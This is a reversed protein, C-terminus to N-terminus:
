FLDFFFQDCNVVPPVNEFDNFIEKMTFPSNSGGYIYSSGLQIIHVGNCFDWNNTYEDVQDETLVTASTDNVRLLPQIYTNCGNFMDICCLTTNCTSSYLVVKMPIVYEGYELNECSGYTIRNIEGLLGCFLFQESDIPSGNYIAPLNNKMTYNAGMLNSYVFWDKPTVPEYFLELNNNQVASCNTALCAAFGCCTDVFCSTGNVCDSDSHCQIVESCKVSEAYYFNGNAAKYCFCSPNNDDISGLACELMPSDSVYHTPVECRRKCQTNYYDYSFYSSSCSKPVWSPTEECSSSSTQDTTYPLTESVGFTDAIKAGVIIGDLGFSYEILTPTCLENSCNEAGVDIGASLTPYRVTAEMDLAWKEYLSLTFTPHLGLDVSGKCGTKYDKDVNYQFNGKSALWQPARFQSPSFLLSIDETVLFGANMGTSQVSTTYTFTSTSELTVELTLILVCEPIFWIPLDPIFVRPFEFPIKLLEGSFQFEDSSEFSLSASADFDGSLLIGATIQPILGNWSSKLTFTLSSDYNLSYHVDLSASSGTSGSIPLHYFNPSIEYGVSGTGEDEVKKMSRKLKSFSIQNSLQSSQIFGNLQALSNCPYYEILTYLNDVSTTYSLTIGLISPGCPRGAIIDNNNPLNDTSNFVFLGPRQDTAVCDNLIMNNNINQNNELTSFNLTAFDSLSSPQLLLTYILSNLQNNQYEIAPNFQDTTLVSELYADCQSYFAAGIQTLSFLLQSDVSSPIVLIKTGNSPIPSIFISIDDPVTIISSSSTIINLDTQSLNPSSNQTFPDDALQVEFTGNINVTSFLTTINAKTTSLIEYFPLSSNQSSDIFNLSNTTSKSLINSLIGGSGSSMINNGPNTTNQDNSNIFHAILLQSNKCQYLFSQSSSINYNSMNGVQYSQNIWTTNASLTFEELNETNNESNQSLTLFIIILTTLIIVALFLLAICCCIKSSKKKRHPPINQIYLPELEQM